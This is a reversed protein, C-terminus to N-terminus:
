SSATPAHTETQVEKFYIVAGDKKCNPCAPKETGDVFFQPAGGVFHCTECIGQGVQLRKKASELAEAMWRAMVTERHRLLVEETVEIGFDSRLCEILAWVYEWSYKTRGDFVELDKALRGSLMQFQKQLIDTQARLETLEKALQDVGKALTLKKHNKPKSLKNVPSSM